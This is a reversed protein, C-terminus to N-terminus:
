PIDARPAFWALLKCLTNILLYCDHISFSVNDNILTFVDTFLRMQKHVDDNTKVKSYATDHGKVAYLSFVAIGIYFLIM